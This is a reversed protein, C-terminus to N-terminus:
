YSGSFGKGRVACGAGRMSGGGAKKVVGGSKKKTTGSQGEYAMFGRAKPADTGYREVMDKSREYTSRLSGLRAKDKAAAAARGSTGKDKSLNREQLSANAKKVGTSLVLKTLDTSSMPTGGKKMKVVGGGAMRKPADHKKDARSAEHQKMTMGHKKAMAKDERMDKASGEKIMGGKKFQAAAGKRGTMLEKMGQNATSRNKQDLAEQELIQQKSPGALQRGVYSGLAAGARDALSTGKYPLKEVKIEGPKPALNEKTVPKESEPVRRTPPPRPSSSMPQFKDIAANAMKEIDIPKEKKKKATPAKVVPAAAAAARAKKEARTFFRRTTYNQGPKKVLEYDVGEKANDENDKAM